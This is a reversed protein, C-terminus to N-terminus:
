NLSFHMVADASNHFMLESISPEMLDSLPMQAITELAEFESEALLVVWLRSRDMSLSYSKLRGEALMTNVVYRQRPILAMFEESFTDPLEFEVM